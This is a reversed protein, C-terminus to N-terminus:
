LVRSFREVFGAEVSSDGLLQKEVDKLRKNNHDLVVCREGNDLLVIKATWKSTVVEVLRVAEDAKVEQVGPLSKLRSVVATRSSLLILHRHLTLAFQQLGQVGHGLFEECLGELPIFSPITHRHLVYEADEDISKRLIVYHPLEFKGARLRTRRPTTGEQMTEFRIGLFEDAKGDQSISAENPNNPIFLTIGALRHLKELSKPECQQNRAFLNALLGADDTPVATNQTVPVNHTSTITALQHALNIRRSELIHVITLSLHSSPSCEHKLTALIDAM